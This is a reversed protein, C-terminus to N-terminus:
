HGLLAVPETFKLFKEIFGATTMPVALAALDDSTPNPFGAFKKSTLYDIGLMFAIPLVPDRKM